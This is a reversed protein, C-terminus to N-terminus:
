QRSAADTNWLLATALMLFFIVSLYVRVDFINKYLLFMMRAASIGLLACSSFRLTNTSKQYKWNFQSRAWEAIAVAPLAYLFVWDIPLTAANQWFFFIVSPVFLTYYGLCRSCIHHERKGFRWLFCRDYQEPPHHSLLVHTM